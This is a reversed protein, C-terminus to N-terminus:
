INCFLYLIKNKMVSRATGLLAVERPLLLGLLSM